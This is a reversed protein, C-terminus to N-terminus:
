VNTRCAALVGTAEPLARFASRALQLEGGGFVRSHSALIQEVLTTGSRPMGVIFIPRETDLGWGRVREFFEPTFAELLRDVFLKHAAPDYALGRRNFDAQQLANARHPATPRGSLNRGPM